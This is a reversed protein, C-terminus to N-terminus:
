VALDFGLISVPDVSLHERTTNFLVKTGDLCPLSFSLRLKRKYVHHLYPTEQFRILHM